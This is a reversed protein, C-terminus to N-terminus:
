TKTRALTGRSQEQQIIFNLKAQVDDVKDSLKPFDILMRIFFVILVIQIVFLLLAFFDGWNFTWGSGQTSHEAM